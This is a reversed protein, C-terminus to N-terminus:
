ILLEPKGIEADLFTYNNIIFYKINNVFILSFTSDSSYSHVQQADEEDHSESYSVAALGGACLTADFKPFWLENHATVGLIGKLTWMEWM